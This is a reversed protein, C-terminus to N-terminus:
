VLFFTLQSSLIRTKDSRFSQEMDKITSAIFSKPQVLANCVLSRNVLLKVDKVIELRDKFRLAKLGSRKHVLANAV